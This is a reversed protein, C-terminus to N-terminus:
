NGLAPKMSGTNAGIKRLETLFDQDFGLQDSWNKADLTGGQMAGIQLRRYTQGLAEYAAPGQSAALLKSQGGEDKGSPGTVNTGQLRHKIIRAMDARMAAEKRASDTAAVDIGGTWLGLTLHSRGEGKEQKSALEREKKLEDKQVGALYKEIEQQSKREQQMKRVNQMIDSDQLQKESYHKSPNTSTEVFSKMRGELADLHFKMAILAAIAAIIPHHFALMMASRIAGLVTILRPGLAIVGAIAVGIMAWKAVQDKMAPSMAQIYAALEQLWAVAKAIYPLFAGGIAISVSKLSGTFTEFALPSAASVFKLIGATGAAFAITAQAGLEKTQATIKKARDAFKAAGDVMKQWPSKSLVQNLDATKQAAAIVGTSFSSVQYTFNQAAATAANWATATHQAAATLAETGKKVGDLAATMEKHNKTVFEVVLDALKFLSM